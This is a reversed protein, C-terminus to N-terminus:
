SIIDQNYIKADNSTPSFIDPNQGNFGGGSTPAQDVISVNYPDLLWEGPLGKAASAQAEGFAQLNNKSSTEIFGGNGGEPGGLATISGFFGTYEDSWVIVKGGDGNVTANASIRADPTIVTALANPVEPNLGLYDGGVLVTGGKAGGDANVEGSRLGVNKGLLEVRGGKAQDAYGTAEVRGSILTTDTARMRINGGGASGAVTTLSSEKTTINRGAIRIEGGVEKGEVNKRLAAIVGSNVVDGEGGTLTVSGDANPKVGTAKVTGANNIALSGVNGTAELVANAAEIVGENVVDAVGDKDKKVKAEDSVEALRVKFHQPGVSQLSVQTGSVMGVTGDRAVLQGENEVHQAILFVDGSSAEIKGQNLISAASDGLFQLDGGRMFTETNVDRTSAIFSAANVTGGPGVLIGAPNILFLHGNAQLSGYIASPNGSLVRNLAASSASPMVFKTTEGAAISFQNWNIVARDTGQQITLSNGVRQFTAAGAVVQEGVPNAYAPVTGMWVVAVGGFLKLSTGVWVVM